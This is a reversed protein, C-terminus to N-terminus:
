VRLGRGWDLFERMQLKGAVFVNPRSSLSKASSERSIGQPIRATAAM